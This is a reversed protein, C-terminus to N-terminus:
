EDGFIASIETWPTEHKGLYHATMQKDTHAMLKQIMAEPWGQKRTDIATSDYRDIRDPFTLVYVM